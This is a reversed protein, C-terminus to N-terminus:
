KRSELGSICGEGFFVDPGLISVIAEKGRDSVVSIRVKGKQIYFVEDAPDGQSFVVQDKRYKAIKQRMDRAALSKPNFSANRKKAM